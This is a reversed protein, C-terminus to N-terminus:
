PRFAPKNVRRAEVQKVREGETQQRLRALEMEPAERKDLLIADATAVQALADLRKSVVMLAFTAQYSSSFLTASHQSDEWQALIKDASSSVPAASPRETARLLALGYRTSIADIVDEATLGLTKERDYSVVMRFLQDNYFTFLVKGVPDRQPVSISVRPPQWMLEQILEPRQHLVRPEPMIGAQRAVMVVSMGLQFDRYRSLDQASVPASAIVVWAISLALIRISTM